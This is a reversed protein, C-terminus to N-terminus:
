IKDLLRVLLSRSEEIKKKPDKLFLIIIFSIVLLIPFVTLSFQYNEVSYEPIGNVMEGSWHFDLLYGLLPQLISGGFFVITNIFAAATAKVKIPNSEIAFPYTLLQGGIFFGTLFLLLFILYTPLSIIYILPVFSCFTLFNFLLLMSKRSGMKDSIWGISPGGAILGILIMSTAFSAESVTFGNAKQLFPVGWLVGFVPVIAYYGLSALAILWSKANKIVLYLSEWFGTHKKPGSESMGLHAPVFKMLVFFLLALLFGIIGLVFVVSRFGWEQVAFTIPAEGFVGGLLALSNGAGILVAWRKRHFFHTTVYVIGVFGFASGMGMLFRGLEAMSIQHAMAFFIGGLGIIMSALTLLRRAGFRDMLIGVPIQLPAYAYLYFASILGVRTADVKFTEMLEPVIVSPTVRVFFDYFTFLVALIWILWRFPRDKERWIQLIFPFLKV